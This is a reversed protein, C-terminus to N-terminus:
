LYQLTEEAPALQPTQQRLIYPSKVGTIIATVRIKDRTDPLIRAGVKIDADADFSETLKEGTKIADGLTLDPGGEIHILCGKAGEYGVDLLPHELTDKVVEDVRNVGSAEGLSILSVGGDKMVAKVDAFDVNILSPFMITDAIGTVARTTISDVMEFAKDIPLNPVYNSLRNNDIVVVRDCM